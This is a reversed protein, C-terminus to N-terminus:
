PAPIVRNRGQNKALYLAKDAAEILAEATSFRPFDAIGCSFTVYFDKGEGRHRIRSFSERLENLVRMGNELNTNFLVIGFEEGGYRGLSDTKRLREVFLRSLIRLVHDGSLHGFEDNIKKFHDLDIMAYVIQTGLRRARDLESVLRIHLQTHNLLGTLSDREMFYRLQRIRAARTKVMTVLHEPKIPKSIFDDGGGDRIAAIQKERDKEVSFYVIPIGVFAEQQRILAALEEGKCNPMYMDMLILEPKEEVLVKMVNTPDTVVSTVMGAQQLIMAYYSIQEPDDDIIMVHYPVQNSGNFLSDIKEILRPIDFPSSLFSDGGHRVAMLRTKFDDKESLYLIKLKESNSGNKLLSIQELISPSELLPDIGVVLVVSLDRDLFGRIADISEVIEVPFGFFGIQEKLDELYLGNSRWLLISKSDQKMTGERQGGEPTVVGIEIQTRESFLALEQFLRQVQNKEDITLTREEKSCTEMVMEIGRAVTSLDTFGFTQGSGVLKHAENQAAFFTEKQFAESEELKQLAAALSEIREPLSQVYKVKLIKLKERISDPLGENM